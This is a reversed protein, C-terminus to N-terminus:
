RPGAVLEIDVSNKGPKLEVEQTKAALGEFGSKPPAEGPRPDRGEPYPMTPPTYRVTHKGTM